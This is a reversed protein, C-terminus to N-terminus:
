TEVQNIGWMRSADFARAKSEHYIGGLPLPLSSVPTVARRKLAVSSEPPLMCLRKKLPNFFVSSCIVEFKTKSNNCEDSQSGSPITTMLQYFSLQGCHFLLGQKQEVAKVHQRLVMYRILLV